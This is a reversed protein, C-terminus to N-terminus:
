NTTSQTTYCAYLNAYLSLQPQKFVKEFLFLSSGAYIVCHSQTGECLIYFHESESKFASYLYVV